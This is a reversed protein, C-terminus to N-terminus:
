YKEMGPYLKVAVKGIMNEPYVLYDAWEYCSMGFCCRSDTSHPRNDWVVFFGGTDVPFVSKKCRAQTKVESGLYEDEDLRECGSVSVNKSEAKEDLEKSEPCLYINDNKIVVTEGPVWVIRKIFPVDKGNPVFVVIDWRELDGYRPTVKDVIIFDWESFNTEMSQWVVTYPNFVFFRISLVVWVVFLLFAILDFIDLLLM